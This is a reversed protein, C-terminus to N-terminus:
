PSRVAVASDTVVGALPLARRAAALVHPHHSPGIAGRVLPGIGLHHEAVQRFRAQSCVRAAAEPRDATWITSRKTV